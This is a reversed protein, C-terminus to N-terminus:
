VQRSLATQYAQITTYDDSMETETLSDGIISLAQNNDSWNGRNFPTTNRGQVGILIKASSYGGTWSYAQNDLEVVGDQSVDVTTSSVRTASIWGVFTSVSMLTYPSDGLTAFYKLAGFTNITIEQASHYSGILCVNGVHNDRNYTGIFGNSQGLGEVTPDFFTDAYGDTGNPTIGNSDHTITGTYALRFAADLDRPDKLNWKHASATGGIFPYIAKHKSWTGNAKFGVVLDDIAEEQATSLTAVADIFAQADADYSGGGGAGALYPNIINLTKYKDNINFKSDIGREGM